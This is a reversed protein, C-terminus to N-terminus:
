NQPYYIDKVHKIEHISRNNKMKLETVHLISPLNTKTIEINKENRYM